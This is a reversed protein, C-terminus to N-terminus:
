ENKLLAAFATSAARKFSVDKNLDDRSIFLVAIGEREAIPLGREEGLVLLATAWADAEIARDAIVTASATTHTVPRGTEADIIHSYRIGDHEFYNRYDGSTAMALGDLSVPQEISQATLSPQEIGIRWGDGRPGSGKAILDGGINVLYNDEGLESLTQAVADIGTGKALASLFVQTSRDRKQLTAAAADHRLVERQGVQELARAIESAPPIEADPGLAENGSGFGWLEILPALTLDFQGASATHVNDAVRMLDNFAPSIAIPEASAAANFRSVESNPNWNSFQEDIRTFTQDIATKAVVPDFEGDSAIVKIQYSTGWVEGSFEHTTPQTNCAACFLALLVVLVGSLQSKQM